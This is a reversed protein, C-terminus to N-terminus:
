SILMSDTHRHVGRILKQISSGIKIFSPKYIMPITGLEDAYKMFGEWRDAHKYTYEGKDNSPLPKTFV